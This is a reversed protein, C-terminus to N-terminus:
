ILFIFLCGLVREITLFIVIHSFLEKSRYFCCNRVSVEEEVVEANVELIPGNMWKDHEGHFKVATTWLKDFPEKAVTIEMIEDYPTQHEFGLMVEERNISTKQLCM